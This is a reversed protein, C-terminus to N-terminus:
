APAAAMIGASLRAHDKQPPSLTRVVSADLLLFAPAGTVTVTVTVTVLCDRGGLDRWGGDAARRDYCDAERVRGARRWVAGVAEV